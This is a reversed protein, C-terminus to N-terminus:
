EQTVQRVEVAGGGPWTQAVAVAADLDEVDVITYAGIAHTGDFFTGDSVAPEGSHGAPGLRVTRATSKGELKGGEVIRGARFQEGYWAGIRGGAEEREEEPIAMWADEDAFFILMCKM